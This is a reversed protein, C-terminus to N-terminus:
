PCQVYIMESVAFTSPRLFTCGVKYITWTSHVLTANSETWGQEALMDTIDLKFVGRPRREYRLMYVSVHKLHHPELEEAVHFRWNNVPFAVAVSFLIYNALIFLHHFEYQKNKRIKKGEIHAYRHYSYFM